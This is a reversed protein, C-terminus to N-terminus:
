NVGAYCSYNPLSMKDFNTVLSFVKGYKFNGCNESLETLHRFLDEANEFSKGKCIELIHELGIVFTRAALHAIGIQAWLNIKYGACEM